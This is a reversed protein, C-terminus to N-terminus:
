SSPNSASALRRGGVIALTTCTLSILSEGVTIVDSSSGGGGDSTVYTRPDQYLFLSIAGAILFGVVWCSAFATWGRGLAPGRSRRGFATFLMGSPILLPLTVLAFSLFSLPILMIAAPLLLAPREDLGILALIGTAAVVMGLAVAGLAGELGQEVPTGGAFRLLALGIGALILFGAAGKVFTPSGALGM